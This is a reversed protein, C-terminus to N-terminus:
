RIRRLEFVVMRFALAIPISTLELDTPTQEATRDDFHNEFCSIALYKSVM